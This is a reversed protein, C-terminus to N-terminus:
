GTVRRSQHADRVAKMTNYGAELERTIENMAEHADLLQGNDAQEIGEDVERFFDEENMPKLLVSM